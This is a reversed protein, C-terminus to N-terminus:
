KPRYVAYVNSVAYESIRIQNSQNGGICRIVGNTPASVAVTVHKKSTTTMAGSSFNLFIIDNRRIDSTKVIEGRGAKSAKICADLMLKVNENKGGIADLLGCRNAFYSVCTACWPAKVLSGYFWKQIDEVVGSYETAGIYNSMEGVLDQHEAKIYKVGDLWIYGNVIEIKM